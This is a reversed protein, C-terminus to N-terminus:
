QGSSPLDSRMQLAPSEPISIIEANKPMFPVQLVANVLNLATAQDADFITREHMKEEIYGVDKGITQAVVRAMHKNDIQLRKLRENFQYEDFVSTEQVTFSAPHLLFGSNRAAYRQTGSCYVVVGISDVSGLNYTYVEIPLSKLINFLALGLAVNGGNSNIMLHIRSYEAVKAEVVRLLAETSFENIAAVLRIFCEKM